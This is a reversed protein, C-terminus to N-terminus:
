SPQDNNQLEYLIKNILYYSIFFIFVGNYDCIKRYDELLKM